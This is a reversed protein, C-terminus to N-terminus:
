SMSKHQYFKPMVIDKLTEDITKVITKNARTLDVEISVGYYGNCLHQWKEQKENERHWRYVEHLNTM